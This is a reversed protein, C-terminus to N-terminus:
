EIFLGTLLLWILYIDIKVSEFIKLHLWDHSM